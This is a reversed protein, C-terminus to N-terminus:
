DGQQNSEDGFVDFIDPTKRRPVAPPTDGSPDRDAANLLTEVRKGHKALKLGADSPRPTKGNRAARKTASQSQEEYWQQAPRVAGEDPESRGRRLLRFLQWPLAHESWSGRAAVAGLDEYVGAGEALEVFLHGNRFDRRSIYAIYRHHFYGKSIALEENSYEVGDTKFYARKATSQDIRTKSKVRGAIRGTVIHSLLRPEEITRKPLTQVSAGETNRFFHTLRTLPTSGNNRDSRSHINHYRISRRVVSILDDLEIHYKVANKDADKSAPDRPSSGCTSPMKKIGIEDIAGIVSEILSRTWWAGYAGYQLFCGFTSIANNSFDRSLNAFANDIRLIAFAQYQLEPLFHHILYKDEESASAGKELCMPAELAGQLVEIASEASAQKELSCTAGRVAGTKECALYGVYWRPVSVYFSENHVNRVRFISKADILQYDLQVYMMPIYPNILPAISTGVAQSRKQDHTLPPWEKDHLIAYKKAYENLSKKARNATKYLWLNSLALNSRREMEELESMFWAHLSDIRKGITPELLKPNLIRAELDTRLQKFDPRSLLQGFAGSCGGSGDGEWHEVEKGRTYSKVRAFKMLARFGFIKGRPDTTMCRDFMKSAQGITFGSEKRITEADSQKMYLEVAKVRMEYDFPRMNSSITIEEWRDMPPTNPSVAKRPRGRVKVIPRDQRSTEAEVLLPQAVSEEPQEDPAFIKELLDRSSSSPRCIANYLLPEDDIDAVIAGTQLLEGIAALAIASDSDATTALRGISMAGHQELSRQIAIRASIRSIDRARAANIARILQLWNDLLIQSNQIERTSIYRYKAGAEKALRSCNIRKESPQRVEEDDQICWWEVQGSRFTVVFDVSRDNTSLGTIKAIEAIDVIYSAVTPEAELKTIVFCFRQTGEVHARRRLKPFDGVWVDSTNSRRSKTLSWASVPQHDFRTEAESQWNM